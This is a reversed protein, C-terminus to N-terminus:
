HNAHPKQRSTPPGAGTAPSQGADPNAQLYADVDNTVVLRGWMLEWHGPYTCVYEHVGETTPAKMKLTQKQGPELLKTAALIDPSKPVFARGRNDLQDPTMEASQNGIKERTGPNVIVLNHPMFDTNEFIIEFPKGAEVVLRPTDYRMQERVATLVFVAVRLEKLEKRLASAQEAPLLGALDAAFQVTELFEQTTRQDAPTGKAYAVLASALAGAKQKSWTKRPLARIGRAAASVDVGKEVLAALATFTAPQEHNMSVAAAIAGRRLAAVEEGSPKLVALLEAPLQPWLLPKVKDYALARIDPDFILPIGVLLESLAEPSRLARMWAANFTGDAMALAGWAAQRMGPPRTDSTLSELRDRVSKLDAPPQLPLQRALSVVADVDSQGLSQIM